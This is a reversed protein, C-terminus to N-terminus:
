RLRLEVGELPWRARVKLTDPYQVFRESPQYPYPVGHDLKNNGNRDRFATVIYLGETIDRLAVVGSRGPLTQYEKQEKKAVNRAGIVFEGKVDVTNSDTVVGEISSFLEDDITRFRLVRVSDRGNRGFLDSARRMAIRLIYWTSGTLKVSPTLEAAADSLWRVGVPTPKQSSDVFAISQEVSTRQMANSFELLIVPTLDVDRATDRVSIANIAPL